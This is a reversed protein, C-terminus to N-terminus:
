APSPDGDAPAHMWPMSTLGLLVHRVIPGFGAMSEVKM